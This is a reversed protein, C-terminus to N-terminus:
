QRTGELLWQETAPNAASYAQLIWVSSVCLKTTTVLPLLLSFALQSIFSHFVM